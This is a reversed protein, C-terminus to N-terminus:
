PQVGKNVARKQAVWDPYGDRYILLNRYGRLRLKAALLHSDDCSQGNCYLILAAGPEPNVSAEFQIIHSELDSEWVPLSHAGKIHGNEFDASRRADLFPHGAEFAALAEQSDIERIAPDGSSMTAAPGSAPEIQKAENGKGPRDDNTKKHQVPLNNDKHTESEQTPLTSPTPSIVHKPSSVTAIPAVPEIEPPTGRWALHRRPSALANSLITCLLALGSIAAVQLSLPLLTRM